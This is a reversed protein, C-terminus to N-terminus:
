YYELVSNTFYSPQSAGGISISGNNPPYFVTNNTGGIVTNQLVLKYSAGPPIPVLGPAQIPYLENNVYFKSICGINSDIIYGGYSYFYPAYSGVAYVYMMYPTTNTYNVGFYRNQTVDHPAFTPSFALGLINRLATILANSGASLLAKLGAATLADAANIDDGTANGLNLAVKGAVTDTANNIVPVSAVADALLATMDVSVTSGDHMLLSLVNTEANYGSLGQLYKDAPINNIAAAILAKIKTIVQTNDSPNLAGGSDLVINALEEQITNLWAASIETPLRGRSLDAEAFLHSVHNAANIRDM